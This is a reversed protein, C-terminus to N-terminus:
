VFNNRIYALDQSTREAPSDAAQGDQFRTIAGDRGRQQPDHPLLARNRLFDVGQRALALAKPDGTLHFLMAYAFSQRSVMRTWQYALGAAIWEPPNALEPCLGAPKALLAKPDPHSADNCLFSPYAGDEIGQAAQYWFPALDQRAHDLWTQGDLLAARCPALALTVALGLLPLLTTPKM